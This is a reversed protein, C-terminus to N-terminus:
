PICSCCCNNISPGPVPICIGYTANKWPKSGTSTYLSTTRYLVFCSHAFHGYSSGPILDFLSSCKMGLSTLEEMDDLAGITKLLEITNKVSLPDPPQLSKALFSSVAGLQLSKITLCLEQLPTRLIEPLRFQPM